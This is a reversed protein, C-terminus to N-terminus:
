SERNAKVRAPLNRWHLAAAITVVAAPTTGESIDSAEEPNWTSLLGAAARWSGKLGETSPPVALAGSRTSPAAVPNEAEGYVAAM